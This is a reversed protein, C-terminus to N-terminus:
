CWQIGCAYLDYVRASGVCSDHLHNISSRLMWALCAAPGSGNCGVLSVAAPGVDYRDFDPTPQMFIMRRVADAGDPGVRNIDVLLPLLVAQATTYLREPFLATPARLYSCKDISAATIRAGPM